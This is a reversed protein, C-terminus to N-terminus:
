RASQREKMFAECQVEEEEPTCFAYDLSSDFVVRFDTDFKSAGKFLNKLTKEFPYCEQKLNRNYIVSLWIKLKENGIAINIFVKKKAYPPFMELSFANESQQDEQVKWYTEEKKFAKKLSELIEKPSYGPFFTDPSISKLTKEISDNSNERM